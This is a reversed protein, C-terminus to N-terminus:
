VSINYKESIKKLNHFTQSQYSYIAFTFKEYSFIWLIYNTFLNTNLISECFKNSIRFM